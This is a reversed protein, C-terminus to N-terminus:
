RTTQSARTLFEGPPIRIFKMGISNTFDVPVGLYKAWARQHANAQEADFPAIAPTSANIPWGHWSSFQTTLPTDPPTSSSNLIQSKSNSHEIVTAIGFVAIAIGVLTLATRMVVRQHRPTPVVAPPAGNAVANTAPVRETNAPMAQFEQAHRSLLEAVENASQFREDPSKAMLKEIIAILWGPTEPSVKQLSRAPMDAVLRLIGIASEAEFAARGACMAYMVSGLCFLDSRVDIPQGNAQEPSMYLPTGVIMGTHTLGAEATVRALGFDALKVLPQFNISSPRYHPVSNTQGAVRLEFGEVKELLINAPKVDRHILGQKHAAALGQATQYALSVVESATLKGRTRLYEELTPGDILEMVLFPIGDIEEVAYITM